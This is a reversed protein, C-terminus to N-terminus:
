QLQLLILVLVETSLCYYQHKYVFYCCYLQISGSSVPRSPTLHFGHVRPKSIHSGTAKQQKRSCTVNIGGHSSFCGSAQTTMLATVDSISCSRQGKFTLTGDFVNQFYNASRPDAPHNVCRSCTSTQHQFVTM